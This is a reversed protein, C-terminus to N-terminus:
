SSTSLYALLTTMWGATAPKTVTLNFVLSSAQTLQGWLQAAAQDTPGIEM